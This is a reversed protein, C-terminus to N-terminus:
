AARNEDHRQITRLAHCTPCVLDCKAREAKLAALTRCSKAAWQGVEFKKGGRDPIHDFQMIRPEYCRGCDTCPKSKEEYLWEIKRVQSDEGKWYPSLEGKLASSIERQLCGCSKTQGRRARGVMVASVVGCDCQVDVFSVREKRGRGKRAWDLYPASTTTWRGFRTGIPVDEVTLPAGRGM